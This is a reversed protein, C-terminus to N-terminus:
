PTWSPITLLLRRAQSQHSMPSPVTHLDGSPSTFTFGCLQLSILRYGPILRGGSVAELYVGSERCVEPVPCVDALPPSISASM